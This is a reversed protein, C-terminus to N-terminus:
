RWQIKQIMLQQFSYALEKAIKTAINKPDLYHVEKSAQTEKIRKSKLSQQVKLIGYVMLSKIIVAKSYFM